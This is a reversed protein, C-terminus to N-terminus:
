AGACDYLTGRGFNALGGGGSGAGGALWVESSVDRCNEAVWTLVPENPGPGDGGLAGDAAPGRGISGVGGSLVYRVEGRALRDRFGAEDLIPDTGFGHLAMVPEGTEIIFPAAEQASRTVLLFRTDGRNREIYDLLRDDVGTGASVAGAVAGPVAGPMVQSGPGGPVGGAGALRPGAAPLAGGSARVATDVSWAAPGVLMAATLLGVGLRAIPEARRGGEGRFLSAAVGALGGLALVAVTVVLPEAPWGQPAGALYACGLAASAVAGAVVIGTV